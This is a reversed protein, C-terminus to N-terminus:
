REIRFSKTWAPAKPRSERVNMYLWDKDSLRDNRVIERFSSIPGVYPCPEQQACEVLVVGLEFFSTGVHLIQWQHNNTVDPPDGHVDAIVPLFGSQLNVGALRPYWGDWRVVGYGTREKEVAQKLFNREELSLAERDLEKRAITQLRDLVASFHLLGEHQSQAVKIKVKELADVVTHLKSVMLKIKEYVHPVPEVYADPYECGRSGSVAQKGYLLHDHRLEAWSALQTQMTKDKWADSRFVPPLRPDDPSQHLSTIAALWASHLNETWRAKPISALRERERDLAPEYPYKKFEEQLHVKARPNGLAALIDLSKPIKRLVAKSPNKPDTLRDYVLNQLVESDLTYRGGLFLFTSRLPQNPTASNNYRQHNVIRSWREKNATIWALKKEPRIQRIEPPKAIANSKMFELFQLPTSDDSPGVLNDLIRNLARYDKMAGSTELLWSLAAAREFGEQSIKQGSASPESLVFPVHTLWTFARFYAELAANRAYHGRVKFVGFDFKGQKPAFLALQAPEHRYIKSITKSLWKPPYNGVPERKREGLLRLPVSLYLDLQMILLENEVGWEQNRVVQRLRKHMAQLIRRLLPAINQAELEPLLTEYRRHFAYLISDSTVLLPQDQQYIEDYIRAPSGGYRSPTSLAIFRQNRLRKRQEPRLGLHSAIKQASAPLTKLPPLPTAKVKAARTQAPTDQAAPPTARKCPTAVGLVLVLGLLTFGSIRANLVSMMAM